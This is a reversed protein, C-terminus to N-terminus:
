TAEDIERLDPVCDIPIAMYLVETAGIIILDFVSAACFVDVPESTWTLEEDRREFQM